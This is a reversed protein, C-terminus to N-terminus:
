GKRRRWHFLLLGLIGLGLLGNVIALALGFDAARGFGPDVTFTVSDSVEPDLPNGSRDVLRMTITHIGGELGVHVPDHDTVVQHLVGGILVLVHGENPAAPGQGSVLSFNRLRFSIALDTGRHAGETPSTIEISPLGVAPGQTVVVRVSARVAPDLATGDDMVLELGVDHPGSPLDLDITPASTTTRPAGDVSVAVHGENPNPPGGTGPKTLNFDSVQFIITVASGNGFVTDPAPSVIRLTPASAQARGPLSGGLTGLALLLGLVAVISGGTRRGTRTRRPRM